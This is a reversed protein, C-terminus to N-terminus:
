AQRTKSAMRGMAGTVKSDMINLLQLAFFHEARSSGFDATRKSGTGGCGGQKRSPCMLKPSSWGGTFGRGSCRYCLRDLWADIVQGLLEAIARQHRGAAESMARVAQAHEKGAQHREEPTLERALIGELWWMEARAAKLDASGCGYREAKSMAFELMAQSAPGLSRLTGRLLLLTTLLEAATSDDFQQFDFSTPGVNRAKWEAARLDRTEAARRYMAKIESSVSDWEVRLRVLLVGLSREQADKHSEGDHRTQATGAALIREADGPDEDDRRLKLHSTRTARAYHEETKTM